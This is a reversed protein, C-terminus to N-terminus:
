YDYWAGFGIKQVNQKHFEYQDDYGNLYQVGIRFAHNSASRWLWGAQICVYGSYDLEQFIQANVALFPAGWWCNAPYIPAYEVGFQFIWPETETGTDFAWDAEAYIRVDQWLRRSIGLALAERYYNIRPSMDNNTIMYEDGMHSSVHYYGFKGQWCKNGFTVPFGARFDNAMMDREHEMNMRLAVAGEMDLQFGEPLVKDQSGYRILGARGGLVCDWVWGFGEQHNWVSAMRPEKAGALYSTYILGSPMLQWKWPQVSKNGWHDYNPYRPELPKVTGRSFAPPDPLDFRSADYTNATAMIPTTLTANTGEYFSSSFGDKWVPDTTVPPQPSSQEPVWQPSLPSTPSSSSPSSIPVSTNSPVPSATSQFGFTYEREAPSYPHGYQGYVVPFHGLCFIAMMGSLFGLYQFTKKWSVSM